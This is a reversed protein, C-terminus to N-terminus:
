PVRFKRIQWGFGVEKSYAETLIKSNKPTLASQHNGRTLMHVIEKRLKENTFAHDKFPYKVGKNIIDEFLAWDEHKQLLERLKSTPRFESGPSIISGTHNDYVKQLDYDHQKLIKHNFKAAKRTCEFQFSHGLLPPEPSSIITKITEMLWSLKSDNTNKYKCMINKAKIMATIKAEQDNLKPKIDQLHMNQPRNIKRNEHRHYLRSFTCIPNNKTVPNNWSFKQRHTELKQKPKGTTSTLHFHIRNTKNQSYSIM